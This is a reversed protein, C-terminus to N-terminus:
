KFVLSNQHCRCLVCELWARVFEAKSLSTIPDLYAFAIFRLLRPKGPELDLSNRIYSTNCSDYYTLITPLHNIIDSDGQAAMRADHIFMHEESRHMEPWYIKVASKRRQGAVTAFGEVTLTGRGTMTFTSHLKKRGLTIPIKSASIMWDKPEDARGQENNALGVEHAHKVRGDLDPNLGWDTLTFRQLAFLLV